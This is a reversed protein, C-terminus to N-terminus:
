NRQYNKTQGNQVRSRQFGWPGPTWGPGRCQFCQTRVVPGGTFERFYTEKKKKKKRFYTELFHELPWSMFPSSVEELGCGETSFSSGSVGGGLRNWPLWLHLSGSRWGRAPTRGVVMGGVGGSAVHATVAGLPPLSFLCVFCSQAVPALSPSLPPCADVQPLRPLLPPM